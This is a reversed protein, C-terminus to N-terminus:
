WSKRFDVLTIENPLSIRAVLDVDWLAARGNLWRTAKIEPFETKLAPIVPAAMTRSVKVGDSRNKKFYL